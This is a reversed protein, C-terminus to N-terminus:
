SLFDVEVTTHRVYVQEVGDCLYTNPESPSDTWNGTSQFYQDWGATRPSSVTINVADADAISDEGTRNIPFAVRNTTTRATVGVVGGGVQQSGPSRLSVVSVISRNPTCVISPSDQLGTHGQENTRFLGGSEYTITVGSSYRLARVHFTENFSTGEVGVRIASENLVALSGGSLDIESRQNVAEGQELEDFNETVLELSRQSNEVQQSDRVNQLQQFGTTSVVGVSALIISVTLVYGILNRVARDDTSVSRM